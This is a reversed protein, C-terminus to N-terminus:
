TFYVREWRISTRFTPSKSASRLEPYKVAISNIVEVLYQQKTIMKCESALGCGKTLTTM